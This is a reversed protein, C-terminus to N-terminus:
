ESLKYHTIGCQCNDDCVLVGANIMDRVLKQDEIMQTQDDWRYLFARAGSEVDYGHEVQAGQHIEAIIEEQTM